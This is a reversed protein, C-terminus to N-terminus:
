AIAPECTEQRTLTWMTTLNPIGKSWGLKLMYRVLGPPSHTAMFLYGEKNALMKMCTFIANLAKVAQSVNLGPKTIVHELFCVPSGQALYLWMAALDENEEEESYRYAIQGIPPFVEIPPVRIRGDPNRRSHGEFWDCIMDYDEPTFVRLQIENLTM